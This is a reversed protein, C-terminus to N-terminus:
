VSVMQEGGIKWDAIFDRVEAPLRAYSLVGGAPTVAENALLSQPRLTKFAAYVKVADLLSPPESGPAYGADGVVVLDDPMSTWAYGGGYNGPYYPSDLAKDFWAPDPNHYSRAWPDSNDIRWARFQLGTYTGTNLLDPIAWVSAGPDNSAFGVTLTAGGWTVSTFARFGPIAVQARLMTAPMTWTKGPRDMLFRGTQRELFDQSAAINSGITDDSYRSTPDTNLVLYDRVQQPTVMLYTM